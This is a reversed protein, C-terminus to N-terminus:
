IGESRLGSSNLIVGSVVRDTVNSAGVSDIDEKTNTDCPGDGGDVPLGLSQGEIDGDSPILAANLTDRSETTFM